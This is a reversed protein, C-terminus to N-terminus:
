SSKIRLFEKAAYPMWWSFYLSRSVESLGLFM